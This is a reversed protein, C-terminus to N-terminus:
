FKITKLPTFKIYVAKIGMFGPVPHRLFDGEILITFQLHYYFAKKTTNSISWSTNDDFEFVSLM